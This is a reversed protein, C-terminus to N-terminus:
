ECKIKRFVAIYKSGGAKTVRQGEETGDRIAEVCVDGQLEENTMKEFLPHELLHSNMWQHLDLVDSITYIMGGDELAYAYESLLNYSIIRRRHNSKKFHPDPFCFFIKELQGRAFYNPFFKMVNAREVSINQFEGPHQERLEAIRKKVIKVVPARIEMGLIIKDRLKPGLTVLLGGFGCGVDAITVKATCTSDRNKNQEKGGSGLSDLNGFGVTRNENGVSGPSQFYQPYHKHWPVCGHHLPASFDGLSLPNHHARIRHRKVGM